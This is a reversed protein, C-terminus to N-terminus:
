LFYAAPCAPSSYSGREVTAAALVFSAILFLVFFLVWVSFYSFIFLYFSLTANEEQPGPQCLENHSSEM